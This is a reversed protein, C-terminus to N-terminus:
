WEGHSVSKGGTVQFDGLKFLSMFLVSIERCILFVGSYKTIEYVINVLYKINRINIEAGYIVMLYFSLTVCRSNNQALLSPSSTNSRSTTSFPSSRVENKNPNQLLTSLM